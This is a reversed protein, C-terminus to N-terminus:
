NAVVKDVPRYIFYTGSVYVEVEDNNPLLTWSNQLQLTSKIVYRRNAQNQELISLEWYQRPPTKSDERWGKNTLIATHHPRRYTTETMGGSNRRVTVTMVHNRFQIIDGPLAVEIKISRGWVYDAHNGVVGFDTTTKKGAQTLAEEVLRVCEGDGVRKGIQSVAYSVIGSM